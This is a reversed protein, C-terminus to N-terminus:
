SVRKLHLHRNLQELVRLAKAFNTWVGAIIEPFERVLLDRITFPYSVVGATILPCPYLELQPIMDRVGCINRFTHSRRDFFLQLLLKHERNQVSNILTEIVHGVPVKKLAMETYRCSVVKVIRHNVWSAMHPIWDIRRLYYLAYVFSLWVCVGNRDNTPSRDCFSILINSITDLDRLSPILNELNINHTVRVMRMDSDYQADENNCVMLDLVRETNLNEVFHLKSSLFVVFEVSTGTPFDWEVLRETLASIVNRRDIDLLEM